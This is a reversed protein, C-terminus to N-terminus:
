RGIVTALLNRAPTIEIQDLLTKIDGRYGAGVEEKHPEYHHDIGPAGAGHTEAAEQLQYNEKERAHLYREEDLIYFKAKDKGLQPPKVTIVFPKPPANENNNDLRIAVDFLYAYEIWHREFLIHRAFGREGLFPKGTKQEREHGRKDYTTLDIDPQILITQYSKDKAAEILPITELNNHMHSEVVIPLHREAAAELLERRIESIEVDFFGHTKRIFDGRPGEPEQVRAKRIADMEPLYKRIAENSIYVAKIGQSTLSERVLSETASKGSAPGGGIGILFPKELPTADEPILADCIKKHLAARNSDYVEGRHPSQREYLAHSSRIGHTHIYELLREEDATYPEPTKKTM